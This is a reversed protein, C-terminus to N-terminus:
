KSIPRITITYQYPHPRARYQWRVPVPTDGVGSAAHDLNLTVYDVKKLQFGYRARDVNGPDFNSANVGMLAEAFFALGVGEANTLKAWRVDTKNGHEQAFVYPVYQEDVTSEYIGIKAGTKRDPYTEFPGRGYWSFNQMEQPLRMEIGVRQLYNLEDGFPTVTHKLVIDGDGTFTIM